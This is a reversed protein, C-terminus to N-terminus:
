PYDTYGIFRESFRERECLYEKFHLLSPTVQDPMVPCPDGRTNVKWTIVGGVVLQM